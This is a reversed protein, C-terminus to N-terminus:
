KNVVKMKIVNRRYGAIAYMGRKPQELQGDRLMKRLIVQVSNQKISLKEDKIIEKIENVSLPRRVESILDYLEQRQSTKQVEYAEGLYEWYSGSAEFSLHKDEIDKGRISFIKRDTRREENCLVILNDAPGQTGMGGLIQDFPDSTKNSKTTHTVLIISLNYEHALDALPGYISYEEAYLGGGGTTSKKNWVRAITDIVILMPNDQKSIWTKIQNLGGKTLKDWQFVTSLNLNLLDKNPKVCIEKMRTQFRREPDELSLYLIQGTKPKFGARFEGFPKKGQALSLALKMMFYSKGVKSRGGLITLGNPILDNVLWQTPLIEKDLLEGANIIRCDISNDRIMKFDKILEEAEDLRGRETLL